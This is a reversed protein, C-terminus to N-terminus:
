TGFLREFWGEDSGEVHIERVTDNWAGPAGTGDPQLLQLRVVYTGPELGTAFAPIWRTLTASALTEVEGKKRITYKVRYGDTSLEVNHLYFDLLVWEAAEGTLTGKPRSYVVTPQDPDFSFTGKKEDVYFNVVDHADRGKVAEHYSRIPFVIASHAGPAMSDIVVPEDETYIAHYPGNDVIVHVHQGHNSNALHTHRDDDASTTQAGLEFNEVDFTMAVHASDVVSSDAPAVVRATAGEVPPSPKGKHITVGSGGGHRHQQGCGVAILAAGLAVAVVTLM